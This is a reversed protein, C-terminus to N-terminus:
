EKGCNPGSALPNNRDGGCIGPTFPPKNASRPVTGGARTIVEHVFNNSNRAGHPSYEKHRREAAVENFAQVVRADFEESTMGNPVQVRSLEYRGLDSAGPNTRVEIYNKGNRDLLEGLQRKNADAVLIAAHNGLLGLVPSELKRVAVWVTDPAM